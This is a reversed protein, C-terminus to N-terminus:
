KVPFATWGDLWSETTGPRLAGLWTAAEDWFEGQPPVVAGQRAPSHSPPVFDPTTLSTAERPLMPDIGFRVGPQSRLWASEDFGNDDDQDLNESEFWTMGRAGIRNMLVSEFTLRGSEAGQVTSAHRVDVAEGSFGEMIVNHFHGGTGRRLTMARQHKDRSRPSVLTLNYMVPESIPGAQHNDGLNDGEFANDGVQSHQQVVLFQVRGQWGEDWDLSDDAAGTIVLYKLDVNGGFVEVGDDLAQHVQVHRIITGQGCGGLTLGNLENNAYVEFGAFEIRAYELVGCSGGAETGGYLGRKDTAPIGEIQSEGTNVPANGLMVVGGWDGAERAGRANASTFVIPASVTGRANLTAGRTVVLASGPRGVIRTGPEISLTSRDEVYVIGDLIWDTEAGWHTDGNISGSIIQENHALARWDQQWSPYLAWLGASVTVLTLVMVIWSTRVLRSGAKGSERTEVIDPDIFVPSPQTSPSGRRRSRNGLLSGDGNIARLRQALERIRRNPHQEAHEIVEQRYASDNLLTHFHVFHIDGEGPHRDLNQKLQWFLEVLRARPSVTAESM